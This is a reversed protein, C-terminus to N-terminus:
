GGSPRRSRRCGADRHHPCASRPSKAPAGDRPFRDACEANPAIPGLADRVRMAPNGDPVAARAGRATEDPIVYGLPAHLSM